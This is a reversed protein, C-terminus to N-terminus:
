ALAKASGRKKSRAIELHRRFENLGDAWSPHNVRKASYPLRKGGNFGTLTIDSAARGGVEEEKLRLLKEESMLINQPRGNETWGSGPVAVQVVWTRDDGSVRQIVIIHVNGNNVRFGPEVKDSM